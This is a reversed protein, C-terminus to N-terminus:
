AKKRKQFGVFGLLASGFLWVAAPLPVASIDRVGIVMDNYDSDGNVIDEWALILDSGWLNTYGDNAVDYVALMDAGANLASQSYFTNGTTTTEELYFGFNNWDIKLDTYAEGGLRVQNTNVDWYIDVSTNAVDSGDFIELTSTKDAIDYIGFNNGSAYGAFEFLLMATANDQDNGGATDTLTFVEAGTDVESDYVELDYISGNFVQGLTPVSGANVNATLAFAALGALLLKKM